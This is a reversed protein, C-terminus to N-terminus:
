WVTTVGYEAIAEDATVLPVGLHRAQVILLRDFPDRHHFPLDHVAWVHDTTIGVTVFGVRSVTRPLDKPVDIRGTSRKIAIEWMTADSVGFRATDREVTKILWAPLEDDGALVWLLAHTDLLWEIM